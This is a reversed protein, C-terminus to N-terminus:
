GGTSGLTVYINNDLTREVEILRNNITALLENVWTRDHNEDVPTTRVLLTGNTHAHIVFAISMKLEDDNPQVKTLLGNSNPKIYLVDGDVWTEGYPTGTTNIGRVKGSVTVLGAQNHAIDGTTIGVIMKTHTKLGNHYNILVKGSNGTTGIAMVPRGKLLTAGSTNQVPIFFVQGMQQTVGFPMGLNATFDDTNWTLQGTNPTTNLITDLGIAPLTNQVQTKTFVDVATVTLWTVGNYAKLDGSTSNFYLCGKTLTNGDNDLTPNSTKAGLYRDDFNDYLTQMQALSTTINNELTSSVTNYTNQVYAKIDTMMINLQEDAQSVLTNGNIVATTTFNPITIPM